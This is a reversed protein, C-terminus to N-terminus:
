PNERGPFCDRVAQSMYLSGLALVLGNEPLREMALRVGEAVSPAAEAKAGLASLRAALEPAPLARPSPAQTCVTSYM